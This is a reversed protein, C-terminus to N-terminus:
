RGCDGRARERFRVVRGRGGGERGADVGLADDLADLVQEVAVPLQDQAEVGEQGLYFLPFPSIPSLSLPSAM